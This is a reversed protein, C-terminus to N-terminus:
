NKLAARLKKLATKEDTSMNEPAKALASPFLREKMDSFFNNVHMEQDPDDDEGFAQAVVLAMYWLVQKYQKLAKPHIKSGVCEKAKNIDSFLTSEDSTNAWTPWLHKYTEVESMLARPFSNPTNQRAIKRIARELAAAERNDDRKSKELDDVGSIWTGIRYPLSIVLAAEEKSLEKFFSM